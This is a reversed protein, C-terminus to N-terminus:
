KINVYAGNTGTFRVQAEAFDPPGFTGRANNGFGYAEKPMGLVSTTVTGDDDADHIVALAYDGPELLAFEIAMVGRRASVKRTYDAHGTKPFDEAKRYLAVLVHGADSPVGAVTVVFSAPAQASLAATTLVLALAALFFRM